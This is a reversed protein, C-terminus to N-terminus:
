ILGFGQILLYIGACGLMAVLGYRLWRVSKKANKRLKWFLMGVLSFACFSGMAIGSGFVLRHHKFAPFHISFVAVTCLFMAISGPHCLTIFFLSLPGTARRISKEPFFTVRWLMFTLILMVIGVALFFVVEYEKLFAKVPSSAFSLMFALIGDAAVVALITVKLRGMDNIIAAYAVLAGDAGFPAAAIIGALISAFFLGIM